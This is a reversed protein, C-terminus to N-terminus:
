KKTNKQKGKLSADGGIEVVINHKETDIKEDPRTKYFDRFRNAMWWIFLATNLRGKGKGEIIHERALNEMYERALANAKKFAASYEAKHRPSNPDLWDYHTDTCIDIANTMMTMTAGERGMEIIKDCMEPRYKSPRGGPGKKPPDNTM